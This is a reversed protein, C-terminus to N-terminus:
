DVELNALYAQVGRAALWLQESLQQLRQNAQQDPLTLTRFASMGGFAMLIHEIVARQRAVQRPPGQAELYDRLDSAFWDAWKEVGHESLLASLSKLTGLLRMENLKEIGGPHAHPQSM